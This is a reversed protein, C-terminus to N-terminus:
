AGAKANLTVFIKVEDAVSDTNAWGIHFDKRMLSAEGTIKASADGFENLTFYFTMPLTVGKLTLKAQAEYRNGGLSTFSETVFTAQPFAKSSLWEKDTIMGQADSSEITVSGTKITVEAKSAVLADPHFSIRASFDPFSGTLTKGDRLVEFRIASGSPLLNFALPEAAQAQASILLFLSIFKQLWFHKM